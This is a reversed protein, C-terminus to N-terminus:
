RADSVHVRTKLPPSYAECQSCGTSRTGSLLMGAGTCAALLKRDFCCLSIHFLGRARIPARRGASSRCSTARCRCCLSEADKPKSRPRPTTRKTKKAEEDDDDDREYEREVLCLRDKAFCLYEPARARTDRHPGLRAPKLPYDRVRSRFATVRVCGWVREGTHAAARSAAAQRM